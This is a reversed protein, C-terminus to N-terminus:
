SRQSKKQGSQKTNTEGSNKEDKDELLTNQVEVVEAFKTADLHTYRKKMQQSSHGTLAMVKNDTVNAMLLTTNFFHRWGHMVLHREKQAAEGIGIKSLANSLGLTVRKRSIPTKGGDESFLYGDGNIEKMRRLDNEIIAPLPIVRPKHSKTDVYGDKESFQGCVSLYGDFLFEGRLGLLEGIRMGTCAALKNTMYIIENKWISNWDPPFIRKVEEPTLIEIEKKNEPLLEIENCPNVELLKRKVAEGLM